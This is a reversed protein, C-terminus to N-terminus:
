FFSFLLAQLFLIYALLSSAVGSSLDREEGLKGLHAKNVLNKANQLQEVKLFYCHLTPRGVKAQKLLM